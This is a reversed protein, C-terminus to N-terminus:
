EEDAARAAELAEYYTAADAEVIFTQLEDYGKDWAIGQVAMWNVPDEIEGTELVARLQEVIDETIPVRM